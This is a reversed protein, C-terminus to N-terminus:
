QNNQEQSNHLIVVLKQPIYNKNPHIFILVGHGSLTEGRNNEATTNQCARKYVVNLTLQWTLKM